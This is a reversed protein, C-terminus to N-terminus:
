ATSNRCQFRIEWLSGRFGEHQKLQRVFLSKSQKSKDSKNKLMPLVKFSDLVVNSQLVLLFALWGAHHLILLLDAMEVVAGPVLDWLVNVKIITLICSLPSLASSGPKHTHSDLRKSDDHLTPIIPILFYTSFLIQQSYTTHKHVNVVTLNMMKAFYKEFLETRKKIMAKIDTWVMTVASGSSLAPSFAPKLFNRNEPVCGLSCSGLHYSTLCSKMSCISEQVVKCKKTSPLFLYTTQYFHSHHFTYKCKLYAQFQSM